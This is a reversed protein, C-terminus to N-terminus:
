VFNTSDTLFYVFLTIYYSVTSNSPRFNEILLFIVLYDVACYCFNDSIYLRLFINECIYICM